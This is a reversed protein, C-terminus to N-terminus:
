LGAAGLALAMLRTSLWQAPAAIVAAAGSIFLFLLLFSTYTQMEELKRNVNDPLFRAIIKGGDLPHIPILNFLALYANLLIFLQLVETIQMAGENREVIANINLRFYIALVCATVVALLLNALPGAAAIWFMDVRPNKLNREDVPVPKAWGFMPIHTLFSVIPLFFTGMPDAHALPNLTLRGMIEATRDGRM